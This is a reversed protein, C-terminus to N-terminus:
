RQPPARRDVGTRGLIGSAALGVAAVSGAVRRKRRAISDLHISDAALIRKDLTRIQEQL